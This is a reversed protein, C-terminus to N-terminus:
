KDLEQRIALGIKELAYPKRIYQGAGLKQIEKVRETESFGSVIIAKQGPFHDLIKRYTDLGDIGPDMIMDLVLLDARKKKIYDVAEEGGSVTDVEYGLKKLMGSAIDRQEEVDDVVLIHEGNGMYNDISISPTDEKRTERLIPFFLSFETGRGETSKIDIYGNHDKVTGWVVAMGLGTGSRGMVKKTYFPEFIRDLDENAIGVGTDVIRFVVYDGEDIHDYGTIPRDVYTNYTSIKIEGGDPMAEAANSVLNMLTKSLHVPSGLIKFLGPYLDIKVTVAPHYYKLKEFEPSKLYDTIIRNLEVEETVAVGRRALTLLDQVIAAAKEGSKQITLLPKRLSSEEPIDMLLLEPYSVLGALINNLDHAVGGALTGLAEMKQAQLLRAKLRKREDEANKLKTIDRSIGRFGIPNGERDRVLSASLEHFGHSGDKRIVEYAIKKIPRGTRYVQNFLNFIKKATESPMYDRNNMRRLEAKSYGTLKPLSDNFFIFNGALDVEFYGEEISDLITRYREESERLAKEANKRQNIDRIIGRFGTSERSSDTVPSVSAEVFRRTGDKRIFEWDYVRDPKGSVFVSNFIQYVADAQTENMYDRYNLGTLEDRTYGLIECLAENFSTFNGALDVEYYGDEIGEIITRLKDESERIYEEKNDSNKVLSSRALIYDEGNVSIKTPLLDFEMEPFDTSPGMLRYTIKKNALLKNIFESRSVKGTLGIVESIDKGFIETIDKFSHLDLWASNAAIVRGDKLLVNPEPAYNFLTEYIENERSMQKKKGQQKEM